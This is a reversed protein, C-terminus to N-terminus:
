QATLVEVSLGEEGERALKTQNNDEFVMFAGTQTEAYYQNTIPKPLTSSKPTEKQASGPQKAIRSIWFLL